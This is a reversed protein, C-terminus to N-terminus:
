ALEPHQQARVAVPYQQGEASRHAFQARFLAYVVGPVESKFSAACGPIAEQSRIWRTMVVVYERHPHPDIVKTDLAIPAQKHRGSPYDAPQGLQGALYRRARDGPPLGPGPGVQAQLLNLAAIDPQLQGPAAVPDVELSRACAPGQDQQMRSSSVRALERMHEIIAIEGVVPLEDREIEWSMPFRHRWLAPPLLFIVQGGGEICIEGHGEHSREAQGVGDRKAAGHAPLDHEFEGAPVRVVERGHDSALR